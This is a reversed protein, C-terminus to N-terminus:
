GTGADPRYASGTRTSSSSSGGTRSALRSKILRYEEDSLDGQRQLERYQALMEHASAAPDEGDRFWSRLAYVAIALVVIALGTGALPWFVQTLDISPNGM